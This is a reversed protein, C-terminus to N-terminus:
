KRKRWAYALLGILGSLVLAVTSPEPTAVSGSVQIERVGAFANGDVGYPLGDWGGRAVNLMLYRGTASGAVTSTTNTLDGSAFEASHSAFTFTDDWLASSGNKRGTVSAVQTFSAASTNWGQTSTRLGVTYDGGCATEWDIKVSSLNYDQGLDVGIWGPPIVGSYSWLTNHDNDFANTVVNAGQHWQEYTAASSLDLIVDAVAFNVGVVAMAFIVAIGM